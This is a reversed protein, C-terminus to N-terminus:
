TGIVLYRDMDVVQSLTLIDVPCYSETDGTTQHALDINLIIVEVGSADLISKIIEPSTYQEFGILLRSSLAIEGLHLWPASKDPPVHMLHGGTSIDPIKM